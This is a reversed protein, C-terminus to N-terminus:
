TEPTRSQPGRAHGKSRIVLSASGPPRGHPNLFTRLRAQYCDSLEAALMTGARAAARDAEQGALEAVHPLLANIALTLDRIGRRAVAMMAPDAAPTTDLGAGHIGAPMSPAAELVEVIRAMVPVANEHVAAYDADRRALFQGLMFAVAFGYWTVAMAAATDAPDAAELRDRHGDIVWQMEEPTHAQLWEPHEAAEALVPRRTKSARYIGAVRLGAAAGARCARRAAKAQTQEAASALAAGLADATEALLRCIEAAAADDLRDGPGGAPSIETSAGRLAPTARLARVAGALVPEALLWRGPYHGPDACASLLQGAAGITCVGAWAARLVADTDSADAVRLGAAARELLEGIPRRRHDDTHRAARAYREGTEQQRARIRAKRQRNRTM